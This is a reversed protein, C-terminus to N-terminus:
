TESHFCLAKRAEPVGNEGEMVSLTRGPEEEEEEKGQWGIKWKGRLNFGTDNKGACLM